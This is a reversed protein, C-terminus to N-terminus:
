SQQTKDWIADVNENYDPILLEIRTGASQEDGDKKDTITFRIKKKQLRNFLEMRETLAVTAFASPKNKIRRNIEQSRKQGVGNDDIIVRTGDITKAFRIDLYKDGKKHLLGHKIANEVYPQLLLSPIYVASTDPIGSLQISYQFGEDFRAKELELYLRLNEIEDSLPLFQKDSAQLMKRMLDSFNGLLAGAENKRNGYVLGQVTNVVIYLFLPNMQARLAVL